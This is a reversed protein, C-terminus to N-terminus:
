AVFEQDGKSTSFPTDDKVHANNELPWSQKLPLVGKKRSPVSARMASTLAKCKLKKGLFSIKWDKLGM